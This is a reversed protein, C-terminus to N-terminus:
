GALQEVPAAIRDRARVLVICSGSWDPSSQSEVAGETDAPFAVIGFHNHALGELRMNDFAAVLDIHSDMATKVCKPVDRQSYTEDLRKHLSQVLGAKNRSDLVVRGVEELQSNDVAVLPNNEAVVPAIDLLVLPKGGLALAVNHSPEQGYWSM